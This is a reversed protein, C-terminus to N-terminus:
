LRQSSGVAKGPGATSDMAVVAEKEQRGALASTSSLYEVESLRVKELEQVIGDRSLCACSRRVVM